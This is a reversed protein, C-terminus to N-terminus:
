KELKTVKEKLIGVEVELNSAHTIVEQLKKEMGVVRKHLVALIVSPDVESVDVGYKNNAAMNGPLIINSM